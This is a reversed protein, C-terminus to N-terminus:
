LGVAEGAWGVGVEIEVRALVELAFDDDLDVDGLEDPGLQALRGPVAFV